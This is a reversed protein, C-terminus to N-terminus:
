GGSPGARGPKKSWPWRNSCRNIPLAHPRARPRPRAQGPFAADGVPADARSLARRGNLQPRRGRLFITLALPQLFWPNLHRAPSKSTPDDQFLWDAAAIELSPDRPKPKDSEDKAM